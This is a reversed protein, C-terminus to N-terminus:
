AGGSTSGCCVVASGSRAAGALRCLGVKSPTAAGAIALAGPAEPPAGRAAGNGDATCSAPASASRGVSAAGTGAMSLGSHTFEDRMGTSDVGPRGEISSSDM